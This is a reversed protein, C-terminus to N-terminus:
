MGQNIRVRITSGSPVVVADGGKHAVYPEPYQQPYPQRYPPRNSPPPYPGAQQPPYQGQPAAGNPPPPSPQGKQARAGGEPADPIAAPKTQAFAAESGLLLGATLLSATSFRSFSNSQYM